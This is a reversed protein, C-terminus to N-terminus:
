LSKRIEDLKSADVQEKEVKQSEITYYELLDAWTKQAIEYLKAISEAETDIIEQYKTREDLFVEILQDVQLQSLRPIADIVNKKDDFPLSLSSELLHTFYIEDFQSEPHFAMRAYIPENREQYHAHQTDTLSM